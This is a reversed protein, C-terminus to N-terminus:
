AMGSPPPGDRMERLEGTEVSHLASRLVQAIARDDMSRALLGLAGGLLASAVSLPAINQGMMYEIAKDVVSGAHSLDEPAVGRPDMQM